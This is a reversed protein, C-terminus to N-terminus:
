SHFTCMMLPPTRLENFFVLIVTPVPCGHASFASLDLRLIATSDSRAQHRQHDDNTERFERTPLHAAACPERQLGAGQLGEVAIHCTSFRAGRFAQLATGEQDLAVQQGRSHETAPRSEQSQETLEMISGSFRLAM